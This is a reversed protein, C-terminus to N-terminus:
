EIFKDYVELNITKSIENKYLCIKIFGLQEFINKIFIHSKDFVNFRIKNYDISFKEEIFKLMDKLIGKIEKEDLEKKFVVSNISLVSYISMKDPVLVVINAIIEKNYYKVINYEINNFQRERIAVDIYYRSDNANLYSSKNSLNKCIFKSILEYDKEGAIKLNNSFEQPKDLINIIGMAELQYLSDKIDNEIEGKLTNELKYKDIFMKSLAETSHTEKTCRIIESATKNLYVIQRTKNIVVSLTGENEERFQIKDLNIKYNM